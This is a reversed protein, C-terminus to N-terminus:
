KTRSVPSTANSESPVSNTDIMRDFSYAFVFPGFCFSKGAEYLKGDDGLLYDVRPGWQWGVRSLYFSTSGPLSFYFYAALFLFIITAFLALAMRFLRKSVVFNKCM